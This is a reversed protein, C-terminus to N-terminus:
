AEGGLRLTPGDHSSASPPAPAAAPPELAERLQRRARHMRSLVTGLPLDLETAAAECTLGGVHVLLFVAKYRDDLRDLAQQLADREALRTAPDPAPPPGTGQDGVNLSARAARQQARQRMARSYCHRLITTLWAPAREPERLRDMSKWAQFFTEQVLEEALEREGCLRYALAFLRTGHADVWSEFLAKRQRELATNGIRWGWNM